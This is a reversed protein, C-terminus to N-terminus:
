RQYFLSYSYFFYLVGLKRYFEILSEISSLSTGNRQLTKKKTRLLVLRHRKKEISSKKERKIPSLSTKKRQLAKKRERLLVLRHRKKEIADKKQDKTPSLSTGEKQLLRRPSVSQVSQVLSSQDTEGLPSSMYFRVTQLFISFLGTRYNTRKDSSIITM